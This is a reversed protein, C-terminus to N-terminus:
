KEQQYIQYCKGLCILNTLQFGNHFQKSPFKIPLENIYM